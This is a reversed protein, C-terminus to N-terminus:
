YYARQSAVFRSRRRRTGFLLIGVLAAWGPSAAPSAASCGGTVENSSKAGGDNTDTAPTVTVTIAQTGTQGADDTGRIELQHVGSALGSVQFVFPPAVLTQDLTGDILLEAKVLDTDVVQAEVAFSSAVVSGNAPVTLQAMPAANQKVPGYVLAVGQQDRTTFALKTATGNCQPYHMISASDYPTLGRFNQPELCDENVNGAEPRIHEHRFGLAHGLEHGMIGVFNPSNFANSDVLVNREARPSDPFFARALYPANAIPNVDFVVATNQATCNADQDPVYVFNVDAFKEWGNDTVDRFANIVKAKNAGFADSVCYTLNRAQAAPWKVDAGGDTYISLAGTEFQAYFARLAPKSHIVHDRDVVYAGTGPERAARAEFQEFSEGATSGM